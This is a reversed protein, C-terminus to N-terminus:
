RHAKKKSHKQDKEKITGQSLLQGHISSTMKQLIDNVRVDHQMEEASLIIPEEKLNEAGVCPNCTEAFTNLSLVMLAAVLTIKLTKM